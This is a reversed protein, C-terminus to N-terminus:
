YTKAGCVEKSIFMATSGCPLALGSESVQLGIEDSVVGGSFASLAVSLIYGSVAPALGTTYSNLAFFLPQDSLVERCLMVLDYIKDELKWIEGNPGRGYSPPDMIVADYRSGRRIERAVFKECDDVIYRVPRDALENLEVNRRATTVMGKSADVHCVAAGGLLCAVTAAGTYGFLNLVRVPRKAAALMDLYLRWNAAQEPFIGTHKFGTPTVYLQLTDDWSITWERPLKKRYEWNGGGAASRHYVADAGRWGAHDRPTDWLVQPDPRILTTTGWRELRNGGSADILEYDRWGGAVRM